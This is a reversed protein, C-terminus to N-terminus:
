PLQSRLLEMRRHREASPLYSTRFAWWVRALGQPSVLRRKLVSLVEPRGYAQVIHGAADAWRDGSIQGALDLLLVLLDDAHRDNAPWACDHITEFDILRARDAAGDYIINELILDGHSWSGSFEPCWIQHARALERGGARLMGETLQGKKIFDCLSVGPVHDAWITDAGEATARLHDGYLRQFCNVEWQQWDTESCIRVRAGTLRFFLNAGSVLWGSSQRRRKVWVWRGDRTERWIDNMRIRSDIATDIRKLLGSM